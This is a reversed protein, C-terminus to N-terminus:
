AEGRGGALLGGVGCLLGAALLAFRSDGTALRTLRSQPPQYPAIEQGAQPLPEHLWRAIPLRAPEAPTAPQAQEGGGPIASRPSGPESPRVLRTDAPKLRLQVYALRELLVPDEHKLAQHFQAYRQAQREMAQAQAQMLAHQWALRRCDLWGPTLVAIAVLTLGVLLFLWGPVVALVRAALPQEAPDRMAGM